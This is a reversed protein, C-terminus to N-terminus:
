YITRVVLERPEAFRKADGERKFVRVADERRYRGDGRWHFAGYEPPVDNAHREKQQEEVYRMMDRLPNKSM